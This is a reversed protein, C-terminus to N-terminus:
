ADAPLLEFSAGWLPQMARFHREDLTRLRTTRAM